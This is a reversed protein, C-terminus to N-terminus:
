TDAAVSEILHCISTGNPMSDQLNNWDDLSKEMKTQLKCLEKIRRKNEKIRRVIIERVMPCPSEGHAARELIQTIEAL